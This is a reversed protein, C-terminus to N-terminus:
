GNEEEVTVIESNNIIPAVFDLDVVTYDSRTIGMASYIVSYISEDENTWAAYDEETLQYSRTAVLVKDENFLLVQSLYLKELGNSQVIPVGAYVATEIFPQITTAITRAQISFVNKMTKDRFKIFVLGLLAVM